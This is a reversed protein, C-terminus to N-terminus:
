KKEKRNVNKKALVWGQFNDDQKDGNVWALTDLIGCLYTKKKYDNEKFVEDLERLMFEVKVRREQAALLLFEIKERSKSGAMFLLIICALAVLCGGIGFWMM